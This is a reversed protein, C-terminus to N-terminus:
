PTETTTADPAAVQDLDVLERRVQGVVTHDVTIVRRTLRVREVAVVQKTIVVREEYRVIEIDDSALPGAEDPVQDHKPIDEYDLEIEERTVPVTFTQEETVLYKRLRVRAVPVTETTVRLHEESRIISDDFTADHDTAATRTRGVDNSSM